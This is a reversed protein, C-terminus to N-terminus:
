IVDAWKRVKKIWGSVRHWCLYYQIDAFIVMKKVGGVWDKQQRLIPITGLSFGGGVLGCDIDIRNEIM